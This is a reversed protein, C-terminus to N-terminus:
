SIGLEDILKRLVGEGGKADIVFDSIKKVSDRADTPCAIIGALEMAKLDNIDNGVYMVNEKKLGKEACIKELANKKNACGSVSPIKLKKARAKVVKNTETSIIIQDINLKKFADVALGDGRNVRVSEKGNEDVLVCNDTMVGDFDYAILRIKKFKARVDEKNM